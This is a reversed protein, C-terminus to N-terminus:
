GRLAGKLQAATLPTVNDHVKVGVERVRFTGEPRSLEYGTRSASALLASDCMDVCIWQNGVGLREVKHSGAKLRKRAITRRFPNSNKKKM